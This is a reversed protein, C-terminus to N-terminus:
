GHSTGGRGTLGLDRAVQDVFEGHAEALEGIPTDGTLTARSLPFVHPAFMVNVIHLIGVHIIALFAEYTHAILAINFVRGTVYHSFFQEGWLLVGTLGLLTTGWFVGLYEFKEKITFRGFTPPDKRAGVLYGILQGAKRLDDPRILMPLNWLSRLLGVPRGETGPRRAQGVATGLAYILHAAFGFVLALGAWHHITRAVSLGGLASIVRDAWAHEAFKLPFGTAALLVFLGALIWHQVRQSVTFRQLRRRGDPHRLIREVLERTGAAAHHHRGIAIQVLELLCILLSPGFSFVTLAIFALAVGFELSARMNPLDLHVSAHGIRADAGPHCQTSRCSNAVNAPAVSSQPDSKPLMLHVNSGAAVHCSVCSATEDGLLAAKGHFSRAFGAIANPLNHDRLIQPDAHCVACVQAQELPPRAPQLRAAVHRTYYRVDVPVQEAHCVACRDFTRPDDFPVAAALAPTMRYVPEDHCYLCQSQGPELLPGGSFNLRALVEPRHVSAQLMAAVNAHSFRRPLGGPDTLHCTRTCDVRSVPQHPIVAVEERPHCDTCALRAHAGQLDHLYDPSVYYVHVRDGSADYRSLGRYQHCLLCNDPDGARASPVLAAAAAVLVSLRGRGLAARRTRGDRGDTIHRM